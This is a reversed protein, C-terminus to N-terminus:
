TTVIFKAVPSASFGHRTVVGAHVQTFPFLRFELATVVGFSGGGGRVAWFLEPEHETDVRRLEGDATVLEVATV